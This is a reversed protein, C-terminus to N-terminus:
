AMVKELAARLDDKSRMGVMKEVLQGSKFIALTPISMIEYKQSTEQASDVDLKGIKVPQSKMEEALEDVIPGQVKCPGCWVASFDVLVPVESKLVESEFNTDDFTLESM